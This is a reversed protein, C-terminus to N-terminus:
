RIGMTKIAIESSNSRPEIGDMGQPLTTNQFNKPPLDSLSSNISPLAVSQENIHTYVENATIKEIILKDPLIDGMKVYRDGYYRSTILAKLQGDRSIIKRVLPLTSQAFGIGKNGHDPSVSDTSIVKSQAAINNIPIAQSKTIDKIDRQTEFLKKTMDLVVQRSQLWKLQEDVSWTWFGEPLGIFASMDSISSSSSLRTLNEESFSSKNILLGWIMMLFILYKTKHLM